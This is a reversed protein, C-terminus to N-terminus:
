DDASERSPLADNLWRGEAAWEREAVTLSKVDFAEPRRAVVFAQWRGDDREAQDVLVGPAELPGNALTLEGLVPIPLREEVVGSWPHRKLKGLYRTRAIVEQGPFCGKRFSLADLVEHGLMQPLFTETSAADLWAIGAELERAREASPSPAPSGDSKQRDVLAYHFGALPEFVRTAAAADEGSVVQLDDRHELSVQDRFVFRKLHALLEGALSEHCLVFFGDETAGICLLAMVRGKPQCLAAFTAQGPQIAEVDVTLQNHLFRAADAGTFSLVALDNRDNM